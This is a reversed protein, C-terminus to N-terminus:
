WAFATENVWANMIATANNMSIANAAFIGIASIETENVWANMVQTADDMGIVGDGSVDGKLAVVISDGEALTATFSHKGNEGTTATLKQYTGDAKKVLVVCAVDNESAM